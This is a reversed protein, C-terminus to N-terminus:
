EIQLRAVVVVRPRGDDRQDLDLAGLRPRSGARLRQHAIHESLPFSRIIVREGM